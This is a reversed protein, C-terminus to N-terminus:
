RLYAYFIFLWICIHEDIVSSKTHKQITEFSLTHKSEIAFYNFTQNVLSVASRYDSIASTFQFYSAVVYELQYWFSFTVNQNQNLTM